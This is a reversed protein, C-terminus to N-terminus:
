ARRLTEVNGPAQEEADPEEDGERFMDPQSKWVPFWERYLDMAFLYEARKTSSMKHVMRCWAFAKKHLNKHEVADSVVGGMSSRDADMESQYANVKRFLTMFASKTIAVHVDPANLPDEVEPKKPRAM